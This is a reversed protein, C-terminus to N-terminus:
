ACANAPSSTWMTSLRLMELVEERGPSRGCGGLGQEPKGDWSCWGGGGLEQESPTKNNQAGKCIPLDPSSSLTAGRRRRGVVAFSPWHTALRVTFRWSHRTTPLRRHQRMERPRAQPRMRAPRSGPDCRDPPTRVERPAPDTALAGSVRSSIWASCSAGVSRDTTRPVADASVPRVALRPGPRRPPLTRPRKPRVWGLFGDKAARGTRLRWNHVRRGRGGAVEAILIRMRRKTRSARM